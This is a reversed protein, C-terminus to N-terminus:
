RRMYTLGSSSRGGGCSRPRRGGERQERARAAQLVKKSDHLGQVPLRPHSPTWMGTRSSVQSPLPLSPSPPPAATTASLSMVHCGLLAGAGCVVGTMVISVLVGRLEAEDGSVAWCPTVVRGEGYGGRPTVAGGHGDDFRRAQSPGPQAEDRM